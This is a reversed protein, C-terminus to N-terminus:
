CTSVASRTATEVRVEGNADVLEYELTTTCAGPQEYLEPQRSVYSENWNVCMDRSSWAIWNIQWAFNPGGLFLNRGSCIKRCIPVGRPFNPGGLAHAFLSTLTSGNKTRYTHILSPQRSRLTVAENLRSIALLFSSLSRISSLFSSRMKSQAMTFQLFVLFSSNSLLLVPFDLHNPASFILQKSDLSAMRVWCRTM